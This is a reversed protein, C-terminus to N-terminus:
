AKQMPHLNTAKYDPLDQISDYITNVTETFSAYPEVEEVIMDPNERTDPNDKKVSLCNRINSRKWFLFIGLLLVFVITGGLILYINHGEAVLVQLSVTDRFTGTRNVIECTYNGEDLLVIDHIRLSTREKDLDLQIRHSCNREIVNGRTSLFCSSQNPLKVRWTVMTFNVISHNCHLTTASGVTSVDSKVKAVFVGLFLQFICCTKEWFKM